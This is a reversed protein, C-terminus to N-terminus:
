SILYGELEFEEAAMTDELARIRQLRVNKLLGGELGQFLKAISKQADPGSKHVVGRLKVKGDDLSLDTLHIEEPVSWSLRRFWETWQPQSAAHAQIALIARALPLTPGQTAQELKLGEVENSLTREYVKLGVWLLTMGVILTTAGATLAAHQVRLRTAEKIETPLLNLGMGLRYGAGLCAVLGLGSEGMQSVVEGPLVELGQWPNPLLTRIGLEGELYADLGKLHAGGGVLFLERVETGPHSDTFFAISREVEKALRELPGRMLSLVQIKSIGKGVAQSLDGRPIGVERKIAEAESETLRVEGEATMLTNTLSRTMDGSGIPIKRTFIPRGSEVMIFESGSAGVELVAVPAGDERKMRGVWTAIACAKPILQTPRLGVQALIELYERVKGMPFAAATSKLKKVGDIEVMAMPECDILMEEPPINCSRQLEWRAAGILEKSPMPPTVVERVCALPDDVVGVLQTASKLDVGEVIHALAQHPDMFGHRDEFRAQSLYLGGGQEKLVVLKL